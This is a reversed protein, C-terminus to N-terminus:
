TIKERKERKEREKRWKRERREDCTCLALRKERKKGRKLYSIAYISDLGWVSEDCKKYRELSRVSWLACSGVETQPKKYWEQSHM